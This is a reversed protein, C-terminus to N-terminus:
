QETADLEAVEKMMEQVENISVQLAAREKNNLELEIIREIGNGGIVCPVGLSHNHVEYQGELFCSCVIM